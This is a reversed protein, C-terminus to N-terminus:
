SETRIFCNEGEGTKEPKTGATPKFFQCYFLNFELWKEVTKAIVCKTFETRQDHTTDLGGFKYGLEKECDRMQNKVSCVLSMSAVFVFLLLLFKM